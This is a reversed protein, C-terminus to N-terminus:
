NLSKAIENADGAVVYAFREEVPRTRSEFLKPERRLWVTLVTGDLNSEASLFIM